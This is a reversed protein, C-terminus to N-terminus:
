LRKREGFGISQCRERAEFVQCCVVLKVRMVMPLRGENRAAGCRAVVALESSSVVIFLLLLLRPLGKRCGSQGGYTVM